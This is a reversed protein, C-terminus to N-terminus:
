VNHITALFYLQLAPITKNGPATYVYATAGASTVNDVWCQITMVGTGKPHKPTIVVSNPIGGLGNEGFKIDFQTVNNAKVEKAATIGGYVQPKVLSNVVATAANTADAGIIPLKATLDNIQIQLSNLGAVDIPDGDNFVGM